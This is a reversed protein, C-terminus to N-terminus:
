YRDLWNDSQKQVWGLKNYVPTMLDIVYKQYGEYISTSSFMDTFYGLHNIAARLPLYDTEKSLYRILEFPRTASTIGAQSLSFADSIM